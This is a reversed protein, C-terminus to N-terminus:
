GFRELSRGVQALLRKGLVGVCAVALREPRFVTAAVRLVDDATVADMRAAKEGYSLPPYFLRTGGFWGALTDPDDLSAELDSRYRSKAKDLERGDVAQRRYEDCMDLCLDVLAPVKAHATAADIEVLATDVFPDLSGSVYYALGLRDCARYHLRTSMGDDLTRLLATLAMYDPHAEPLGRFLIQVNTQSGPNEVYRFRPRTQDEPPSGFVVERGSAVKGFCRHASREVAHHTTPGAVALILNQAGYFGRFHRRCDASSFRRVNEPSGAIPYGLPHRPWMEARALDSVNIERGHEDRDELLEEIIIRRELDIDRFRPHTFIEGLIAMGDALADPALGIQYLSYDRGTEAYLTGGLEEIAFNLAYSSPHRDTGRFLMHELFHSLGNDRPTEYRSGVKAYVVLSASHLHPLEVTVTRLGNALTTQHVAYAKRVAM